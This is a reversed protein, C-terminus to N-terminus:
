WWRQSYVSVRSYINLSCCVVFCCCCIGKSLSSFRFEFFASISIMNTQKIIILHHKRFTFLLFFVLCVLNITSLHRVFTLLVCLLNDLIMCWYFISFFSFRKENKQSIFNWEYVLPNVLWFSYKTLKKTKFFLWLFLNSTKNTTHTHTFYLDIFYVFLCDPSKSWILSFSHFFVRAFWTFFLKHVCTFRVNKKERDGDDDNPTKSGFIIMLGFFRRLSWRHTDM